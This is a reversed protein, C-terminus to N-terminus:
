RHQHLLSGTYLRLVFRLLLLQLVVEGLLQSDRRVGRALLNAHNVRGKLIFSALHRNPTLNFDVCFVVPIRSSRPFEVIWCYVEVFMMQLQGLKIDGV